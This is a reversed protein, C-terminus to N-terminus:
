SSDNTLPTHSTEGHTTPAVEKCKPRTRLSPTRQRTKETPPKPSNVKWRLKRTPQQSSPRHPHRERKTRRNGNQTNGQPPAPSETNSTNSIGFNRWVNARRYGWTAQLFDTGSVFETGQQAGALYCVKNAVSASPIGPILHDESCRIFVGELQNIMLAELCYTLPQAWYIWRFVWSKMNSEPQLYGTFFIMVHLGFFATRIAVNLDKSFAGVARNFATLCVTCTFVFLLNLFFKGANAELSAMFYLVITYLSCQVMLIPLDVLTKALVLASPRYFAFTTHKSTISRGVTMDIAEYMQMWGIVVINFFLTGGITFTGRSTRNTGLFLSGIILALVLTNFFRSSMAIKDQLRLQFDRKTLYWIQRPLSVVYPSGKGSRRSKDQKVADRFDRADRGSRLEEDYAALEEQLARWHNSNRFATELEEPTLPTKGEWGQKIRRKNPDTVSTLFDATTSRPNRYFGISEFYPAAASGPGYYIQRGNDILCVKDFERYIQEGAQYLTVINTSHTLTSLIRLAHIYDVATSSDLGRTSNDWANVTARSALAEIISVRKREGGSVGRIFSNGVMTNLTHKMGFMKAFLELMQQVFADRSLGPIRTAPTKTSLAFKLTQQVTLTPHHIDEESNFLIEGRYRGEALEFPVGSYHIDGEIRTFERKQNTLARLFTSTGSGPRGLVLLMEGPRVVGSFGQIVYKVDGGGKGRSWAKRIAKRGYGWGQELISKGFLTLFEDLFTSVVAYGSGTGSVSLNRFSVGIKKSIIGSNYAEQNSRQLYEELDFGHARVVEAKEVDEELDEIQRSARRSATLIRSTRRSNPRSSQRTARSLERRLEEFDFLAEDINIPEDGWWHYSGRRSAGPSAQIGSFRKPKNEEDTM